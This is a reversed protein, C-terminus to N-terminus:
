AKAKARRKLADQKFINLYEDSPPAPYAREFASALLSTARWLLKIYTIM